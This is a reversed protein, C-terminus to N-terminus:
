SLEEVHPNQLDFRYQGTADRAVIGNILNTNAAQGGKKNVNSNYYDIIAKPVDQASHDKWYRAEFIYM